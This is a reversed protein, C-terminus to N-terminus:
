ASVPNRRRSPRGAAAGVVDVVRFGRQPNEGGRGAAVIPGEGPRVISVEPVRLDKRTYAQIASAADSFRDAVQKYYELAKAPQRRADYIQGLIYM